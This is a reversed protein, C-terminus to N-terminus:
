KRRLPAGPPSARRVLCSFTVQLPSQPFLFSFSLVRTLSPLPFPSVCHQLLFATVTRTRTAPATLSFLLFGVIWSRISICFANRERRGDEKADLEPLFARFDQGYDRVATLRSKVDGATKQVSVGSAVRSKGPRVFVLPLLLARFSRFHLSLPVGPRQAQTSESQVHRRGDSLGEREAAHVLCLQVLRSLGGLSIVCLLPSFEAFGTKRVTLPGEAHTARSPDAVRILFSDCLFLSHPFFLASGPSVRRSTLFRRKRRVPISVLGRWTSVRNVSHTQLNGLSMARSSEIIERDRRAAPHLVGYSHFGSHATARM